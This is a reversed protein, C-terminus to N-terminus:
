RDPRTSPEAVTVEVTRWVADPTAARTSALDRGDLQEAAVGAVFGATWRGPTAFLAAVPADIRLAAGRRTLHAPAVTRMGGDTTAIFAVLGAGHGILEFRGDPAFRVATSEPPRPADMAAQVGGYPGELVLGPSTPAFPDPVLVGPLGCLADVAWDLQAADTPRRLEVLFRRLEPSRELDALVAAEAEPTLRGDAFAILTAEDPEAGDNQRARARLATVLTEIDPDSEAM